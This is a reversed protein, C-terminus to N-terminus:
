KAYRGPAGARLLMDVVNAHGQLSAFMLATKGENNQM